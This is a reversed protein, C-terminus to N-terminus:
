VQGTAIQLLEKLAEPEKQFGTHSVNFWTKVITEFESQGVWDECVRLSSHQVTGDGDEMHVTMADFDSLDSGTFSLSAATDIGHGYWCYTKVGPPTTSKRYQSISQLIAATDPLGADLVAQGMDSAKYSRNSSTIYTDDVHTGNVDDYPFPLMFIMAPWNRVGERFVQPKIWSIGDWGLGATLMQAVQTAGNWLSSMSVWSDVYKQKWAPDVFHTLFLHFYPGGLSISTIVVKTDNNTTYAKEILAKLQPFEKRFWSKPGYRFDYPAGFLNVGPSYGAAQLQDLAYGWNVTTNCAAATKPMACRIDGIGGYDAIRTTVGDNNTVNGEGLHKLKLNDFLCKVADPAVEFSELWAYYWDSTKSCLPQVVSPKNLKAQINSGVIGPVIVVPKRATPQAPCRSPDIIQTSANCKNLLSGEAHCSLDNHLPCWRCHSGPLWSGANACSYCDTFTDCQSKSANRPPESPDSGPVPLWKSWGYPYSVNQTELSPRQQATMALAVVGLACTVFWM